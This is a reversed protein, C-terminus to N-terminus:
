DVQNRVSVKIRRFWQDSLRVVKASFDSCKFEVLIAIRTTSVEDYTAIEEISIRRTDIHYGGALMAYVEGEQTSSDM